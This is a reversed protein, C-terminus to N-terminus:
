VSVSHSMEYPSAQRYALFSETVDPSLTDISPSSPIQPVPSRPSRNLALPAVSPAASSTISDRLSEDDPIPPLTQRHLANIAFSDLIDELERLPKSDVRPGEPPLAAEQGHPRPPFSDTNSAPSPTLPTPPYLGRTAPLPATMAPSSRGSDSRSAGRQPPVMVSTPPLPPSQPLAAFVSSKDTDRAFKFTQPTSVCGMARERSRRRWVRGHLEHDHGEQECHAEHKQAQNGECVRGRARLYPTDSPRRPRPPADEFPSSEDPRTPLPSQSNPSASSAVSRSNSPAPGLGLLQDRPSLASSSLSEPYPAAPSMQYNSPSPPYNSPSPPPAAGYSAFPAEDDYARRQANLGPGADRPDWPHKEGSMDGDSEGKGWVESDALRTGKGPLPNGGVSRRGNLSADITWWSAEDRKAKRKKWCWCFFMALIAVGVAGGGAIIGILAGPSLVPKASVGSAGGLAPSYSATNLSAFSGNFTSKPISTTPYAGGGPPTTPSVATM